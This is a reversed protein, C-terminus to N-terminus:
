VLPVPRESLEKEMSQSSTAVPPVKRLREFYLMSAIRPLRLSPRLYMQNPLSVDFCIYLILTYLQEIGYPQHLGGGGMGAFATNM